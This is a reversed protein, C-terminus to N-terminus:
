YWLRGLTLVRCHSLALLPWERAVKVGGDQCSILPWPSHQTLMVM